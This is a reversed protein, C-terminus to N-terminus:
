DQADQLSKIRNMDAKMEPTACLPETPAAENLEICRFVGQKGIMDIPEASADHRAIVKELARAYQLWGDRQESASEDLKNTKSTAPVGLSALTLGRLKATAADFAGLERQANAARFQLGITMLDDGAEPKPLDEAAVLFERQYRRKLEPRGDAQWSAQNIMWAVDKKTGGLERMLWAARYYPVDAALAKYEGSAVLGTLKAVEAKSFEKYIVLGNTPCVPLALPFEWSGYPKGDPRSGFISYSATTTFEFSSDGIPCKMTQRVPMGAITPLALGLSCAAAALLGTRMKHGRHSAINSCAFATPLVM